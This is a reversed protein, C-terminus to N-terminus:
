YLGPYSLDAVHPETHVQADSLPLWARVKTLWPSQALAATSSSVGPLGTVPKAPVPHVSVAMRKFLCQMQQAETLLDLVPHAHEALYELVAPQEFLLEIDHMQAPLLATIADVKPMGGGQQLETLLKSLCPFSDLGFTTRSTLGDERQAAPLDILRDDHRADASSHAGLSFVTRLSPYSVPDDPHTQMFARATAHAHYGSDLTIGTLASHRQEVSSPPNYLFATVNETKCRQLVEDALWAGYSHGCIIHTTAPDAKICAVIDAVQKEPCFKLKAYAALYAPLQTAVTGKFVWYAVPQGSINGTLKVCMNKQQPQFVDVKTIGATHCLSAFCAIETYADSRQAMGALQQLFGSTSKSEYTSLDVDYIFKSLFRTHNYHKQRSAHGFLVSHNHAHKLTYEDWRQRTREEDEIAFYEYSGSTIDRWFSQIETLPLGTTAIVHAQAQSELHSVIEGTGLLSFYETLDIPTSSRHLTSLLIEDELRDRASKYTVFFDDVDFVGIRLTFTGLPGTLVADHARLRSTPGYGDLGETNSDFYSFKIPM